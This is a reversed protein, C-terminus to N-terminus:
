LDDPGHQGCDIEWEDMQRGCVPCWEFGLREGMKQVLTDMMARAAEDHEAQTVLRPSTRDDSESSAPPVIRGNM